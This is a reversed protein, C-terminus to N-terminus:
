REGPADIDLAVDAAPASHTLGGVSIADPRSEAFTRVNELTIGGSVEVFMRHDVRRVAELVDDPHFNDLLVDDPLQSLSLLEDLDELSQVEVEVRLRGSSHLARHVAERIGGAVAVHNDKVLIMDDLAHRHNVGGGARVARKDLVRLGPATKRTDLIAVGTGKVADVFAATRTAIGCARQVLNLATREAALIARLDGAVTALRFDEGVRQAETAHTEFSVDADLRAFCAGAVDLCSVVIPRRAVLAARGRDGAPVLALSTVDGSRVDEALAREVLDEYPFLDM